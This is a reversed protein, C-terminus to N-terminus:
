EDENLGEDKIIRLSPVQVEIPLVVEMSYILSFPTAGTSTRATTRYGHLPFPLMEHWDKYTVKMKQIIKKINKNAAEVVDNMKPQYASSNHHQIKFQACLATNMINNLNTDNDIIIREPIGYRCILNQKIFRAVVNKTVSSFSAAKVWKTFYDIAM